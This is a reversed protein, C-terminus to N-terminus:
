GTNNFNLSVPRMTTNSFSYKDATECLNPFSRSSIERLEYNGESEPPVYQTEEWKLVEKSTKTTKYIHRDVLHVDESGIDAINKYVVSGLVVTQILVFIIHKIRVGNKRSEFPVQLRYGFDLTDNPGVVTNGVEIDYEIISAPASRWRRMEPHLLHPILRPDYVLLTAIDSSCTKETIWSKFLKGPIIITAVLEYQIKVSWPYGHKTIGSLSISTPLLLGPSLISDSIDQDYYELDPPLQFEFPLDLHAVEDSVPIDIEDYLLYKSYSGSTLSDGHMFDVSLKGRLSIKICDILTPKQSEFLLRGQLYAMELGFCGNIWKGTEHLPVISANM